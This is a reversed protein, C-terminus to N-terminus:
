TFLIFYHTISSFVSMNQCLIDPNELSEEEEISDAPPEAWSLAARQYSGCMVDPFAVVKVWILAM